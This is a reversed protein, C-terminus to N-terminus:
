LPPTSLAASILANFEEDQAAGTFIMRVDSLDVVRIDRVDREQSGYVEVTAGDVEYSHELERPNQDFGKVADQAPVGTQVMQLYGDVGKVWGVSVASEGAVAMRRASNPVWGQEEMATPYRVPFDMAGTELSLFTQADVENVPVNEATDRGFSCMGTFAVALIMVVVIAGLSYFIDKGDQFIRPKEEAVCVLIARM